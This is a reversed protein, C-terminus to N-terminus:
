FIREVEYALETRGEDGYFCTTNPLIRKARDALAQIEGPSPARWPLGPIPLYADIRLPIGPDVSAIFAAIRLVEEEDVYGPILVTEARLAAPRRSAIAAFNQLITRNDRGTYDRHLSPTFAKLSFVIENLSFLPPMKMGNTLLISRCNKSGALCDLVAPFLPDCVPEAGMFVAQKVPLPDLLERIRGVTLFRDPRGSEYEREYIRLRNEPLHCDFAEKKLLCIRCQLNCGWFFMCCVGYAGAWTIHYVRTQSSDKEKMRRHVPLFIVAAPRFGATATHAYRSFRLKEVPFQPKLSRM